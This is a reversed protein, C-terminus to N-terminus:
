FPRWLAATTGDIWWLIERRGDGDIDLLLPQAGTPVVEQRPSREGGPRRLWVTATNAPDVTVLDDVGGGDIDGFVMRDAPGYDLDSSCM